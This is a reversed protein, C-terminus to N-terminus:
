KNAGGYLNEENEKIYDRLWVTVDPSDLPVEGLITKIERTDLTFESGNVSRKYIFDRDTNMTVLTVVTSCMDGTPTFDVSDTKFFAKVVTGKGLQSDIEFSGGTQEAALKFLPIGMGVKRTTRTTFFPDKVSELQESSMGRGNDTISISLTNSVTDEDLTIEILSADATISNQAVDLVNLSLERM